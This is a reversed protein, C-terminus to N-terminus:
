RRALFRLDTIGPSVTLLQHLIRGCESRAGGTNIVTLKSSDRGPKVVGAALWLPNRKEFLDGTWHDYSYHKDASLRELLRTWESTAKANGMTAIDNNFGKMIAAYGHMMVASDVLLRDRIARRSIRDQRGLEPRVGALMDYFHGAINALGELESEELADGPAFANMMERLTSLTIVQPNRQTLRDTVRNVNEKLATSNEIVRKALMSLDDLTTLDYAKSKATPKPRQNKDFFYNGEDEKSLFYLEVKFERNGKFKPYDRPAERWARVAKLIAQHRHHSDPLYAKATYLYLSTNKKDWYAEFHGPRLNWILSNLFLKQGGLLKEAIDDANASDFVYKASDPYCESLCLERDPKTPLGPQVGRQVDQDTWILRSEAADALEEATITFTGFLESGSGTWQVNPCTFRGRYIGGSADTKPSKRFGTISFERTLKYERQL